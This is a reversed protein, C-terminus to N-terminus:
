GTDIEKGDLSSYSRRLEPDIKLVHILTGGCISCKLEPKSDYVPLDLLYTEPIMEDVDSKTKSLFNRILPLLKKRNCNSLIGFQRIKFFRKPLIHLVFRKAFTLADLTCIKTENTKRIKYTFKVIGNKYSIIRDNSIGIRHTYKGLYNVIKGADAFPKKCYSVWNKKKLKCLLGKFVKEDKFSSLGGKFSLKGYLHYLAELMKSKFIISLIKVSIFFGKKSHIWETNLKDLGGGPVICHIHPHYNLKQDWTHLVSIGGIYAGLNKKNLAAEKLTEHACQFLLNLMIKKNYLVIPRLEKPITFVVHFYQVPLLELLRKRVWKIRQAAQCNPCHRNHCSNYYIEYKGCKECQYKHGGLASTQCDIIRSLIGHEYSNLYNLKHITDSLIRAIIHKNM